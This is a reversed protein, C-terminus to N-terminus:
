QYCTYTVKINEFIVINQINDTNFVLRFQEGKLDSINLILEFGQYIKSDMTDMDEYIAGHNKSNLLSVNYEPKGLYGIGLPVNYDKKYSLDYSVTVKMTYGLQNLRDLDFGAPTVYYTATDNYGSWCKLSANGLYVTDEVKLWKAYLMTDKNVNLPFIAVTTFGEDFYWGDFVCYEKRPQMINDVADKETVTLTEISDGGNTEFAVTHYKLWKAYLITDKNIIIPFSVETTLEANLFWGDFKYGEKTPETPESLEGNKQITQSALKEGGNAEFTVTYSKDTSKNDTDKNQNGGVNTVCSVLMAIVITLILSFYKIYRM